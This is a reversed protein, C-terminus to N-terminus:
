QRMSYNFTIIRSIDFEFKTKAKVKTKVTETRVAFKRCKDIRFKQVTYKQQQLKNSFGDRLLTSYNM